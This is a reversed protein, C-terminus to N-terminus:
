VTKMASGPGQRRQRLARLNERELQWIAIRDGLTNWSQVTHQWGAVIWTYPWINWPNDQPEGNESLRNELDEVEHQLRRVEARLSEIEQAASSKM